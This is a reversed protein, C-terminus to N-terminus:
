LSNYLKIISEIVRKERDITHKYILSGFLCGYDKDKRQSYAIELDALYEKTMKLERTLAAKKSATTKYQDLYELLHNM